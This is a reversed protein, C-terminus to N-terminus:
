TRCEVSGARGKRGSEAHAWPPSPLLLKQKHEDWYRRAFIAKMRNYSPARDRDSIRRGVLYEIYDDAASLSLLSKRFQDDTLKNSRSQGKGPNGIVVRRYLWACLVLNLSGWLTTYEPDRRWATFCLQLFACLAAVGRDELQAAITAAGAGGMSPVDSRSGDWVRLMTSMSLVPANSSGSRVRDYGVYPCKCRIKQLQVNSQEMGKLIDDPRLRVLSSNLQVFEDAMQGMTTFYHTRVDAYCVLVDALLFAHLRHQGDVIFVDGDLVGLTLVGPMVGHKQISEALGVVKPTPRLERQFPPSKWSAALKKTIEITDVTTQTAREAEGTLKVLRM